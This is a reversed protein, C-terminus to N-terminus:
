GYLTSWVKLALERISFPKALFSGEEEIIGRQAIVNATYGSIFLVKVRPCLDRVRKSLAYGDMGPMIVDTILLDIQDAHRQALEVAKEPAAATIVRYGLDELIDQTAGLITAEDEVLLITEGLAFPIVAPEVQVAVEAPEGFRPLYIRFSAGRGVESYVHIFGNNQQVIGYVTSLGLGTGKGTEKTTFFPEFIKEQIAKDMGRGNDTVALMVYEGPIADPNVACYHDDVTVNSSEIIVNGVSDIADRANVCLNALIQDVQTPDLKVRWLDAAPQWILEIDEGILRRLMKLMDAVTQNLDLVKPAITQKRAFALLQRTLDASSQAAKRIEHMRGQLPHGPGMRMLVMDTQLLIVALMNNFDHAVGGALRGVSEMKQSQRLQEELAKQATIVETFLVIGGISGDADYWPRCEWRSWDVRGDERVFSDEDASIIEGALARRHVERWRDPIDPFVEYHHKGIIDPDKVQYDKLYRQSVYIYRLDRDHVAIASRDHEIIYRMLQHSHRLSEEAQKRQSIDELITMVGVIGNEGDRIPATSLSCPFLSGDKRQCLGEAAVQSEGALTRALQEEFEQRQHTPVIPLLKGLAEEETWGLLHAAAPNWTTVLGALDLSYVALPTAEFISEYFAQTRRLAVQTQRLQAQKAAMLELSLRRARLLVEVRARLESKLIPTTIVEDILQWIGATLINVDRRTTVLLIPLHADAEALKRAALEEWLHNLTPGDVICLDFPQALLTHGAALVQRGGDDLHSQLLNRDRDRKMLLLITEM